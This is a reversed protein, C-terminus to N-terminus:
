AADKKNPKPSDNDSEAGSPAPARAAAGCNKCKVGAFLPNRCYSCGASPNDPKIRPRAADHWAKLATRLEEAEQITNFRVCLWENNHPNGIMYPMARDGVALMTLRGFADFLRADVSGSADGPLALAGDGRMEGALSTSDGSVTQETQKM